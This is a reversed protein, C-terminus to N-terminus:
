SQEPTIQNLLLRLTVVLDNLQKALVANGRGTSRDFLEQVRTAAYEHLGLISVLTINTGIPNFVFQGDPKVAVVYGCEVPESQPIAEAKQEESMVIGGSTNLPRKAM